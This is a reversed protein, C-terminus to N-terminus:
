LVFFVIYVLGIISAGAIRLAKPLPRPAYRVALVALIATLIPFAVFMALYGSSGEFSSGFWGLEAMPVLTIFAAFASLLLLLIRDFIAAGM